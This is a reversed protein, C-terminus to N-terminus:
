VKEKYWKHTETRPLAEVGHAEIFAVIAWRSYPKGILSEDLQIVDHWGPSLTETDMVKRFNSSIMFIAHSDKHEVLQLNEPKSGIRLGPTSEAIALTFSGADFHPKALYKSSKPFDYKLFRLAIHPCDSDFIKDVTGPFKQEFLNLINYITKYTLDWIPQAKLVFNNVVPHQKLFDSYKQLIIPHFHFFDKSDNYIHDNPDRHKFGLDGRRHNPAIDFDIYAKVDNPEDLFEFFANIAEQIAIPSIPFDVQAYFQKQLITQLETLNLNM